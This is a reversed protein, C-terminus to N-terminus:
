AARRLFARAAASLLDGLLVIGAGLAVFFLMEDYFHRARADQIWYGLSVVGLLGLVTAERVCTEFRYFFYLLFRTLALPTVAFLAIQSRRGGLWALSRLPSADLNEITEAGLKGLIGANHVALALVAPWASPGLMALLLFAWVYEPIARLFILLARSLWGVALWGGDRRRPTEFPRRTALSRAAFPALLLGGAAALCIALVSIALTQLSGSLGRSALLGGAWDALMRLSFGRGRLPFPQADDRLFSRVNALRRADFLEAAAIDGCSWAWVALAGLLLLSWRILRARPRERRSVELPITV